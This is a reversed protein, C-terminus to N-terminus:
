HKTHNSSQIFRVAAKLFISSIKRLETKVQEPEISLESALETLSLGSIFYRKAIHIRVPSNIQSLCAAFLSAEMALHKAISIHSCTADPIETTRIQESRCVISYQANM